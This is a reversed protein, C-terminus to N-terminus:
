LSEAARRIPRLNGNGYPERNWGIRYSNVGCRIASSVDSACGWGNSEAVRCRPRVSQQHNADVHVDRAIRAGSDGADCVVTYGQRSRTEVIVRAEGAPNLHPIQGRGGGPRMVDDDRQTQGSSRTRDPTTAPAVVNVPTSWVTGTLDKMEFSPGATAQLM